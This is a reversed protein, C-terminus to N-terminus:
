RATENNLNKRPTASLPAILLDPFADERERHEATDLDRQQDQGAQDQDRHQLRNTGIAFMIGAAQSVRCGHLDLLADPTRKTNQM